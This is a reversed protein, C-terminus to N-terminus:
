VRASCSYAAPWLPSFAWTAKARCPSSCAVLAHQSHPVCDGWPVASGSKDLVLHSGRFVDECTVQLSLLNCNPVCTYLCTHMYCCNTFKFSPSSTQRPLSPPLFPSPSFSVGVSIGSPSYASPLSSVSPLVSHFNHPTRYVTQPEIKVHLSMVIDTIANASGKM